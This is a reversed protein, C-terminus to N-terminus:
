FTVALDVYLARGEGVFYRYRGFAFDAREAYDRDTLNTLRAGIALQESLPQRWRLHLLNHGPYSATATPELYYRGLHVWELEWSAGRPTRYQLRTSATHRPAAVMDNGAIDAAAAVGSLPPDNRFRHRALTGDTALQWDDAIQWRLSYEFGEHETEAGNINRREADQFIAEEKRMTFLALDVSGREFQARWGLEISRMRESDLDEPQQSSQLRYLEATQPAREGGALQLRLQQRETLAFILGGNVGMGDFSDRRDAPRAYRCNIPTGSRLCPSGDDRVAGDPLRNDYDYRQYEARVGADFRWRPALEGDLAAFLAGGLADVRYDYHYGAPFEPRGAVADYQFETLEGRTWEGDFGLRAHLTDDVRFRYLSQWGGGHLESEELPQGILFHQRFRSQQHRLYPTVTVSDGEGLERQWRGYWRVARNDRFAEPFANRRRLQADRYAREGEVYGATEQNLNTASLLSEIRTTGDIRHDVRLGLKQQDYGADDMYGGDHVGNLNLRVASDGVTAAGSFLLRAYDHPGGTITLDSDGAAARSVVNIVGHQANGGHVFTGPGRLLELRQAQESNVEMLQNVNCFGNPRIQIGDEAMYFAGCSGPGTFVPSRIATLHEQGNGRSVWSGAIRGLSENPHVAGVLAVEEGSVVGVSANLAALPQESRTGIVVMSEMGSAGVFTPAQLLLMSLAIYVFGASPQVPSQISM